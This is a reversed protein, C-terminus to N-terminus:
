HLPTFWGMPTMRVLILAVLTQRTEALRTKQHFLNSFNLYLLSGKLNSIWSRKIVLPDSYIGKKRKFGEMFTKIGNIRTRDLSRLHDLMAYIKVAFVANGLGWQHRSSYLDNNISYSFYGNGQYLRDLFALSNKKVEKIFDIM